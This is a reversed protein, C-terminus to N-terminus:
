KVIKGRVGLVTWVYEGENFRDFEFFNHILM